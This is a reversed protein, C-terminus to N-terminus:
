PEMNKRHMYLIEEQTVRNCSLLFAIAACFLSVLSIVLLAGALIITPWFNEARSAGQDIIFIYRVIFAAAVSISILSILRLIKVSKYLFLMSVMTKAQIYVYEFISNFLRSPRTSSNVEIPYNLIKMKAIGLQIISELCYSFKSYLFLRLLSNRSYVRFGSTADRVDTGSFKRVMYSGFIQLIKKINSFEAHKRIPRAGIVLDGNNKIAYDVMESIYRGPYQNDGDTNILYDVKMKIANEVGLKFAAVLGKNIPIDLIFDVGCKKAVQSTSDTSGDNIIQIYIKDVGPIKKPLESIVLPLTEEENKCPIQIMVSVFSMRLREISNKICENLRLIFDIGNELNLRM